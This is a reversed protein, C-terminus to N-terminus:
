RACAVALDSLENTRRQIHKPDCLGNTVYAFSLGSEPDAWAIQGGAGNHGFVRPSCKSGFGREAPRDGAVILGLSRSAPLGSAADKLGQTVVATMREITEPKLLRTGEATVGGNVLPQYYLAVAAATAFGAAAPNGQLRQQPFNFHFISRTNIEGTRAEPEHLFLSDAAREQEPDPLGIFLENAVGCPECLKERLHQRYDMGSLRYIIESLVWHAATPHYEVA